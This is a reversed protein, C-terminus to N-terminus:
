KKRKDGGPKQGSAEPAQEEVTAKRPRGPGPKPKSTPPEATTPKRPRGARGPAEVTPFSVGELLPGPEIGLAVALRAVASAYPQRRDQEWNKLTTTPVGAWRALQSQSLGRALRLEAIRSGLTQKKAAM